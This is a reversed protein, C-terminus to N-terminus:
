KRRSGKRCRSGRSPSTNPSRPRLFRALRNACVTRASDSTFKGCTMEKAFSAISRCRTLSSMQFYAAAHFIRPSTQRRGLISPPLTNRLCSNPPPQPARGFAGGRRISACRLIGSVVGSRLGSNAGGPSGTGAGLEVLLFEAPRGLQIWMEQFQRALLGASSRAPMWAPSIIAGRRKSPTEHLLWAAPDYLCADM